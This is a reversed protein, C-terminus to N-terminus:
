KLQSACGSSSRSSLYYFSSQSLVNFRGSSGLLFSLLVTLHALLSWSSYRLTTGSPQIRFHTIHSLPHEKEHIPAKILTELYLHLMFVFSFNQSYSAPPLDVSTLSPSLNKHSLRSMVLNYTNTQQPKKKIKKTMQTKIFNTM